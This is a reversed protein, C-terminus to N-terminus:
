LIVKTVKNGQKKIFVGNSPNAVRVGLLNYYEVPVESADPAIADVGSEDIEKVNSKFHSWGGASKYLSVCGAPVYLTRGQYDDDDFITYIEEGDLYGKKVAPPTTAHCIVTTIQPNGEWVYGGLNTITSPLEVVTCEYNKDFCYNGISKLGEPLVLDKLKYCNRFSWNGITEVGPMVVTELSECTDFAYDGITKVSSPLTVSKLETCDSFANANVGVVPIVQNSSNVISEPVVVDDVYVAGDSLKTVSVETKKSNYVYRIGGRTIYSAALLNGTGIAALFAVIALKKFSYFHKM